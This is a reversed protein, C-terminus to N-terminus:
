FAKGKLFFTLLLKMSYGREKALEIILQTEKNQKNTIKSQKQAVTGTATKFSPLKVRSITDSLPKTLNEFREKRFTEYVECGTEFINLLAKTVDPPTQEQTVINRLPQNGEIFPNVRQSIYQIMKEIIMEMRDIKGPYYEHHSKLEYNDNKLLAKERYM